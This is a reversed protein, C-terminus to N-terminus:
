MLRFKVLLGDKFELYTGTKYIWRERLGSYEPIQSVEDPLGLSIQCENKTMGQTVQSQTILQWVEDKIQSYKDRPNTFTFLKDFTSYQSMYQSASMTTYVMAEEGEETKFILALPFIKNGAIIEKIVVPILKRGRYEEGDVTYWNSTKVYLVKGKLLSDAKAIYDTSVLEPLLPIFDTSLIDTISKLVRYIYELGSSDNYVVCSEVGNWTQTEELGKYRLITGKLSCCDDQNGKRSELLVPLEDVVCVFEKGREWEKLSKDKFNTVMFSQEESITDSDEDGFRSSICSYFLIPMLLLNIYRVYQMM